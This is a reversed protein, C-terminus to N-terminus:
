RPIPYAALLSGRPLGYVQEVRLRTRESPRGRGREWARVTSASCGCHEALARQTLGSWQRLALLVDPLDGPSWRRADLWRPAPVGAARAVQAIPVGYVAALRRVASLPARQGREWAGLRHRTAGIRRAVHEQSLGTRRRLRHLETHSVTTRTAPARALVEHLTGTDVRLAEALDSLHHRPIRARGAEWNYVRSAPVGVREAIQRVPVRAAERLTRLGHGRLGVPAAPRLGRAEDFFDAVTSVDVELTDALGKLLVPGPLRDRREWRHVSMPHVALRSALEVASLDRRLRRDRLSATLPSEKM